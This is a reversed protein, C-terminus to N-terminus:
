RRRLWEQLKVAPDAERIIRESVLEWKPAVFQATSFFVDGEYERDIVSLYVRDVVDQELAANYIAAGGIIWHPRDGIVVDHGVDKLTPYGERKLTIVERGKLPPLTSATKKGVYLVGGMTLEKFTKLDEPIRWALGDNKGIVGNKAVAVIMKIENM